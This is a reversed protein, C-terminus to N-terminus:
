GAWFEHLNILGDGDTDVYPGNNTVSSLETCEEWWDLLSNGDRDFNGYPMEFSVANLHGTPTLTRRYRVDDANTFSDDFVTRYVVVDIENSIGAIQLAETTM